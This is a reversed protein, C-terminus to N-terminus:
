KCRQLREKFLLKKDKVLQNYKPSSPSKSYIKYLLLINFADDSLNKSGWRMTFPKIQLKGGLMLNAWELTVQDIWREVPKLKVGLPATRFNPDQHDM